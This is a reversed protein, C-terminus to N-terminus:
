QMDRRRKAARLLDMSRNAWGGLSSNRMWEKTYHGGRRILASIAHRCVAAKFAPVSGTRFWKKYGDNGPGFFYTTRGEDASAKLKEYLLILGPGYVAFRPNFATFWAETNPGHGLDYAVSVLEEGAYLASLTPKVEESPHTLFWRTLDGVWDYAFPDAGNTRQYQQSKWLILQQLVRLDDTHFEFRLPGVERELKRRRNELKSFRGTKASQQSLYRSFGGSLDAYESDRQEWVDDQFHGHPDHLQHFELTALNCAALIERSCISLGPRSILAQRGSLASGVPLGERRHTRQVGVLEGAQKLLAVEVGDRVAAVASAFAPTLFPNQFVESEALLASWADRDDRALESVPQCVLSPM